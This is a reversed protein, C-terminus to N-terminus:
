DNLGIGKLIDPISKKVRAERTRAQKAASFFLIYARQRGPTLAEFAKKLKPMTNLKQQFEEPYALETRKILTVKLGAKEIEIAEKIYAKITKELKVIEAVGTFRLQRASQVNQTQQVLIKKPDKMLAAKFILLACYEKFDHILVVNAGDLIYCPKGWKLEETLGSDLCINRLLMVEQQWKKVKIFYFDVKPNTNSKAM